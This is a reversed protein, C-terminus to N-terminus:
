EGNWYRLIDTKSTPVRKTIKGDKDRYVEFEQYTEVTYGDVIEKKELKEELTPLDESPEATVPQAIVPQDATYSYNLNLFSYPSELYAVLGLILVLFFVNTFTKTKM